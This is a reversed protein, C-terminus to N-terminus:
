AEVRMRLESRAPQQQLHVAISAAAKILKTRSLGGIGVTAGDSLVAAAAPDNPLEGTLPIGLEHAVAAADYPGNDKIVLLAVSSLDGLKAALTAAANSAAHISRGSRRSVLLVRDAAKMVPWCSADSIRGTDVLVDRGTGAALARLGRGLRDWAGPDLSGAQHDHQFGTMVWVNPAEPLATVHSAVLAASEVASLRRTAASWSLVGGALSTRGLLLGSAMDGGAPDADVVLVPRPWALALAWTSTTAGPAAKGSTISLLM